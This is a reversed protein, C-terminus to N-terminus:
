QPYIYLMYQSCLELKMVYIKQANLDKNFTLMFVDVHLPYMIKIISELMQGKLYNALVYPCHVM